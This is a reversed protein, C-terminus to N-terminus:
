GSAMDLGPGRILARDRMAPIPTRLAASADQPVPLGAGIPDPGLLFGTAEGRAVGGEATGPAPRDVPVGPAGRDEPPAKEDLVPPAGEDLVPPAGLLLPPGRVAPAGLM